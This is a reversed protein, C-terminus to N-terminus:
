LLAAQQGAFGGRGEVGSSGEVVELVWSNVGVERDVLEEIAAEETMLRFEVVVLEVM